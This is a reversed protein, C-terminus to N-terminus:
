RAALTLLRSDNKELCADLRDKPKGLNLTLIAKVDDVKFRVGHRRKM